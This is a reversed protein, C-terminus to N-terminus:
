QHRRLWQLVRIEDEQMWERLQQRRSPRLRRLEPLIGEQYQQLVLPHVYSSRCVSRTNVLKEAVRDIAANILRATETKSSPVETSALEMAAMCTAGWTRFQRSTFTNGSVERIYANVDQSRVPHRKGEEDIYQFLQQGPLEQLSKLAKAIRRDRHSVKWEKGSKGKFQFRIASGEFAVHRNRLTTAGFSGNERAYTTNGIRIYLNDLIWVVAAIAKELTPKRQRLDADVRARIKPLAEAFDPLLSFKAEGREATWLPHYRYQRRGRSDRGIAQLHTLPDPSIAVDRYAPPIALREIREIESPDTIRKGQHDYYLFGRKGMKRTIPQDIQAIYRLKMDSVPTPSAQNRSPRSGPKASSSHSASYDM